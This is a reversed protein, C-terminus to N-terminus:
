GAIRYLVFSRGQALATLHRPWPNSIPPGILYLYRYAQPWLKLAFPIDRGSPAGKASAMLVSLDPPKYDAPDLPALARYAERPELPQMGPTSYLSSVYVGRVSAALTPAYFLPQDDLRDAADQVAILVTSRSALLPFTAQFQRYDTQRMAWANAVSAYNLALVATVLAAPVTRWAGWPLRTVMFAPLIMGAATLMRVDQYQTGFMMRPLCVYTAAYGAAIWVGPRTLSLRRTAVLVAVLAALAAGTLVSFMPNYVNMFILPWRLKTGFSDWHFIPQGVGDGGIAAAMALALVVPSAMFATLRLSAALSPRTRMLSLEYLGITLGYIGLDFLHTVFLAAVFTAHVLWRTAARRDRLAIWVAVAWAALGLGFMFNMMGWAFPLSFLVLLGGPGGLRQRRKTAWELAMSGTVVLVQSLGVFVKAATQAGVVHALVPVFLDMALDTWLRYRVVYAPSPAGSLLFMRSLHNVYDLMAPIPTLTLQVLVGALILLSATAIGLSLRDIRRDTAGM